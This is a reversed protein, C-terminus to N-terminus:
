GHLNRPTPPAIMDIREKVERMTEVLYRINAKMEAMDTESCHAKQDLDSIKRQQAELKAVLEEIRQASRGEAMIYTRRQRWAGAIAIVALVLTLIEGILAMDLTVTTM